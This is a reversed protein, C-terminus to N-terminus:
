GKIVGMPRLRAVKRALGAQHVVEIVEDVDKYAEPVEELIGDRSESKVLIGAEELQKQVQRADRGKRAATRSMRRGAGHCVSGFTERMAGEAGALIWSATGMSGPILVPQGIDRYARPLERHGPPFARTAGKRHVLVDVKRGEVVHKERKAINHSVDYVLDLRVSPGFVKRFSGRIFHLIAQRNAWAFNAAARMAGLYAQGEPSHIPVCALQRDPLTIGYRKMAPGMQALFDTCVQHGLGRSGCHILVVAQGESLGMARAAAADHIQEVWQVELFHNGSGLTALQPKGRKKARESVAALDAEALCGNAECYELDREMGYGNEVMWRAGKELVEDLQKDTVPLPGDAGAGCPVDRFLQDVLERLRPRVQDATLSTTVSRVGCNIDFGVGGPSVVGHEWGLAAVGGIPFGYGQHIDPMALSPGVIGPLQAVNKAQEISLDQSIQELIAASAYVVVGPAVQHRFADM